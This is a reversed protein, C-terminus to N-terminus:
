LCFKSYLQICLGANPIKISIADDHLAHEPSYACINLIVKSKVAPMRLIHFVQHLYLSWSPIIGRTRIYVVAHYKILSM